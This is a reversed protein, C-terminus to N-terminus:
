NFSVIHSTNVDLESKLLDDEIDIELNKKKTKRNEKVM